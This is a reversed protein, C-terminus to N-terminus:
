QRARMQAVVMCQPRYTRASQKRTLGHQASARRTGVPHLRSM